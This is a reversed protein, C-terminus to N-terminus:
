KKFFRSASSRMKSIVRFRFDRYCEMQSKSFDSLRINPLQRRPDRKFISLWISQSRFLSEQRRKLLTLQNFILKLLKCITLKFISPYSTELSMRKTFPMRFLKLQIRISATSHLLVLLEESELPSERAPMELSTELQSYIRANNLTAGIM